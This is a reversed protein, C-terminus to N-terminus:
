ITENDIVKWSGPEKLDSLKKLSNAPLKKKVNFKEYKGGRGTEDDYGYQQYKKTSFNFDSTTVSSHYGSEFNYGIPYFDNSQYRVIYHMAQGGGRVSWKFNLHLVGKIIEMGDYPDEPYTDDGENERLVLANQQVKLEYHDTIKLVLVLIRPKTKLKEDRWIARCSEIVSDKYQMIMAADETNDKNLDGTVTDVINWDKLVFDDLTKWVYAANSVHIIFRAEPFFCDSYYFDTYYNDISTENTLNYELLYLQNKNCYKPYFTRFFYFLVTINLVVTSKHGPLPDFERGV